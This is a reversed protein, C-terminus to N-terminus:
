IALPAFGGAPLEVQVPRGRDFDVTDLDVAKPVPNDYTRVVFRRTTLNSLSSWLTHDDNAAADDERVAGWPIDFANLVHLAAMELEASTAVPRLSATLAAARLYRSPSSYDGPLGHLGAGQGMPTVEVGGLSQPGPNRPSLNLHNRLNTLHWDLHPWNCAVGLPNDFVVQAGDRWEVVASRGDADHLVVHAPPAFGFPEFLYPWVTTEALAAVAEPVTACTGLLYAVVEVVSLLTAPDAGDAPQYDCFGPMYLLGAYLGAENMGDTLADPDDFADMGVVGHRAVWAKGTGAGDIGTGAGRHDRPLVTVKAGLANPFEMTRGVVISGDTAAIRFSTCM